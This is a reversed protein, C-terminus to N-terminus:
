RGSAETIMVKELFERVLGYVVEPREILVHHAADPVVHIAAQPLVARTRELQSDLPFVRDREAFIVQVPMHLENLRHRVSNPASDRLTMIYADAWRPTEM